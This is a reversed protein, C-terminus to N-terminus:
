ESHEKFWEKLKEKTAPTDADQDSEPGGVLWKMPGVTASGDPQITVTFSALGLFDIDYSQENEPEQSLIENLEENDNECM